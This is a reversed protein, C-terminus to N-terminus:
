QPDGQDSLAGAIVDVGGPLRVLRDISEVALIGTCSYQHACHAIADVIEDVRNEETYVIVRANDKMLDRRFFNPHEGYGQVHEVTVGPVGRARLSKDLAELIDIPVVATIRKINM